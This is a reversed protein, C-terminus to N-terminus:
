ASSGSTDRSLEAEIHEITPLSSELNSPLVRTLDYTSVGLPKDIDRLSYEAVLGNSSKCLLLGITRQDGDHRMTDDVASCYFNLKGAFEPTFKRAKLEVVVFARLKLHYFLLDLRFEEGGVVLDVQRGVFSFGQGLEVLFKEVHRVLDAELDAERYKEDLTVFDLVYPDKFTRAAIEAAHTSLTQDFNNTGRGARLHEAREIADVLASRSWAQDVIQELYWRRAPSDGVREVVTAHHGWPVKLLLEPVATECSGDMQGVAQPVFEATGSCARYFALMRHLNTRSFGRVDPLDNRIDAALRDLVKSGWGEQRQRSHLLKGVEWYLRILESNVALAARSRATVIRRRVETLLEAYQAIEDSSM